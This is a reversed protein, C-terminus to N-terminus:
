CILGFGPNQTLKQMKHAGDILTLKVYNVFSSCHVYVIIDYTM